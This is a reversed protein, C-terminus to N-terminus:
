GWNRVARQFARKSAASSEIRWDTERFENFWLVARFAPMSEPIENNMASSIWRAKNGGHESSGVEAVMMPKGHGVLQEYSGKFIQSFTLWGGWDLQSGGNYGDLGIWDVHANGPYIDAFPTTGDYGVNPSWVFRVNSAGHRRFIRRVKRWVAVYDAATNGLVGVSWPYRKHNMEHALRLMVPRGFRRLQRAWSRIYADFEGSAIHALAFEPQNMGGRWDWPEWTIVPTAGFAAVNALCERSVPSRDHWSQYWHVLGPRAGVNRELSALVDAEWPSGPNWLGWQRRPGAAEASEPEDLASFLSLPGPNSSSPILAHNLALASAITAGGTLLGRRTLRRGTWVSGM